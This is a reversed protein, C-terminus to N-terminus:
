SVRLPNKRPLPTDIERQFEIEICTQEEIMVDREYVIDNPIEELYRNIDAICEYTTVYRDKLTYTKIERIDPMFLHTILSVAVVAKYLTITVIM